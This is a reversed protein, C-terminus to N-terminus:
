VIQPFPHPGLASGIVYHTDDMHQVWYRMAENVADKLTATGQDVTIVEAGLLEMRFVNLEQRAADKAGMFVKCELGLLAAITATAVGHQGAGTEAIVKTKGMYKTLLGQGIANNSRFLTTYPFLTSRHSTLNN